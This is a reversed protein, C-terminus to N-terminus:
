PHQSFFEDERQPPESLVFTETATETGSASLALTATGSESARTHWQNSISRTKQHLDSWWKSLSMTTDSWGRKPADGVEVADAGADRRQQVARIYKYIAVAALMLVVIVFAFVWWFYWPLKDKSSNTWVIVPPPALATFQGNRLMGQRCGSIQDALDSNM